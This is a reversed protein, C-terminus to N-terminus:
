KRDAGTDITGFTDLPNEEAPGSDRLMSARHGFPSDATSLPNAPQHPIGLASAAAIYEGADWMAVSPSLTALYLLLVGLSLGGAALYRHRTTM